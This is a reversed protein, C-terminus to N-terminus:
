AERYTPRGAPECRWREIRWKPHSQVWEAIIQQAGVMCQQPPVPEISVSLREIRCESPTLILCITLVLDM